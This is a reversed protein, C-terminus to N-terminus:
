CAPQHVIVGNDLFEFPPIRFTGGMVFTFSRPEGTENPKITFIVMHNSRDITATVWEDLGAKIEMNTRSWWDIYKVNAETLMRKLDKSEECTPSCLYDDLGVVDGASFFELDTHYVFQPYRPGYDPEPYEPKEDPVEKNIYWDWDHKYEVVDDSEEALVDRCVLYYFYAGKVAEYPLSFTAGESPVDYYLSEYKFFHDSKGEYIGVIDPDFDDEGSDAGRSEENSAGDWDRQPEETSCSGFLLLTAAAFLLNRIKM